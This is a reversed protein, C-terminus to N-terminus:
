SYTVGISDDYKTLVTTPLETNKLDDNKDTWVLLAYDDRVEVIVMNPGGSKLHVVDGVKFVSM